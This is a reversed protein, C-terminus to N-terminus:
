VGFGKEASAHGRWISSVRKRRGTCVYRCSIASHMVDFELGVFLGPKLRPEPTPDHSAARIVCAMSLSSHVLGLRSSNSSPAGLASQEDRDRRAPDHFRTLRAGLNSSRGHNM